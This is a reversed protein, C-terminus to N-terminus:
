VNLYARVRVMSSAFRSTFRIAAVYVRVQAFCFAKIPCLHPRWTDLSKAVLAARRARFLSRQTDKPTLQRAEQRHLQTGLHLDTLGSRHSIARQYIARFIRVQRRSTLDASQHLGRRIAFQLRLSYTFNRSAQRFFFVERVVVIPCLVVGLFSVFYQITLSTVSM